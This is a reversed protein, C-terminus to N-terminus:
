LLPWIWGEPAMARIGQKLRILAWTDIYGDYDLPVFIPYAGPWPCRWWEGDERAPIGQAPNCGLSELEATWRQRPYRQISIM